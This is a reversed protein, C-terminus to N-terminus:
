SNGTRSALGGNSICHALHSRLPTHKRVLKRTGSTKATNREIMDWDIMGRLVVWRNDEKLHGGFPLIFDYINSQNKNTDRYM